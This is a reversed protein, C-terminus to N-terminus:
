PQILTYVLLLSSIFGLTSGIDTSIRAGYNIFPDIYVIDGAQMNLNADKIGDITSLDVLYIKPNNLEGRIIKIRSANGEQFVGGTQALVEFLTTNENQLQFISASYGGQFIYIRRNFIRAIVFPSNVQSKLLNELKEEIQNLTLGVVKIRGIVPVKITSDSRVKYGIGNRQNGGVTGNGNANVGGGVFGGGNNNNMQNGGINVINYGDNSFMQISIEDDIAIKYSEKYDVSDIFSQFQYNVPTKLMRSKDLTSCSYLSSLVVISLVFLRM